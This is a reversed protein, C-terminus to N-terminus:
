ADIGDESFLPWSGQLFPNEAKRVGMRGIQPPVWCGGEFGEPRRVIDNRRQAEALPILTRDWGPGCPAHLTLVQAEQKAPARADRNEKGATPRRKMLKRGASKTTKTKLMTTFM